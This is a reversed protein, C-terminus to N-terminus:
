LTRGDAVARCVDLSSVIGTLKGGEVIPIRHIRLRHMMRCLNRVDTDETAAVAPSTMIDRVRLADPRRDGGNKVTATAFFMDQQTVVGVLVGAEDLVPAGHIHERMLMEALDDVTSSERVTYVDRRMLDRALM